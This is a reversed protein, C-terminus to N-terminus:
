AGKLDTKALPLTRIRKGTLAAIANAVAPAIPPVGPEGVGTPKEKSDVIYVEVKPMQDMRLVEFGDFNSQTVVGKDLTLESYLAASLGFGVGGEMQARVIDPNVVQGCDVAVVVRDVKVSGDKDLHLEVVQAVFSNFSEHLAVGRAVGQPLRKGWRAKDAALKLVGAHRPKDKLLALRFEVPDKKAAVALEDIMTEVAYATHTSGVSRWFLVPIGPTPSHLDVSADAIAYPQNAAGEVSTGDIGNKVMVAFLTGTMLSQGVIRHSWGTVNGKDDLAAKLSHVYLPRYYGARMDDERTRQLRIPAKLGAAKAIHVAEVVYESNMAGRRGFSGGSPLSHVVVQEPKLGAAKAANTQDLTPAQHGSWTELKNDHLWVVCNLPEMPAHALYPFEYVAEIVTKGAAIGKAADGASHAVAGPKDLLGKYDTVLDTSSRKEAKTEDWTIKLADRGKMAPWMGTAVVAVGEPIKVVKKVGKIAMAKTADFSKVKAGFTPPHAVVATLLGPLKVDITYTQTGTSKAPSDLRPVAKGIFTYSDTSKLPVDAPAPLAAAALAMEGYTAQHTGSKLVGKEATVATEPVSWSKAAAAVLMARATAGAQRMQEFSNAMATSGGTLQIGIMLNKYLADNAPAYEYRVQAWDADMEDAVLTALGTTVGQGMEHHKIIITVTNDPAVRVFANPEFTKAAAAALARGAGTLSVGIVLGLTGAGKLVLRRSLNKDHITM